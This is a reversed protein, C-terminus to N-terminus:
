GRLQPTEYVTVDGKLQGLVENLELVGKHVHQQWQAHVERDTQAVVPFAGLGRM